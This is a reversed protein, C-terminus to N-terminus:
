NSSVLMGLDKEGPCSWGSQGLGPIDMPNTHGLHLVRCKAKIFRVGSAKTWLDLRDLDRQLAKRGELLGVSVGLKAVEAFWSFSCEIGQDLNDLFTNFLVLGLVLGTVSVALLKIYRQWLKRRLM